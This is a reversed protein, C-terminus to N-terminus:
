NENKPISLRNVEVANVQNGVKVGKSHVMCWKGESGLEPIARGKAEENLKKESGVGKKWNRRKDVEFM